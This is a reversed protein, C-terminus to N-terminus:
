LPLPLRRQEASLMGNLKAAAHRDAQLLASAVMREIITSGPAAICRRRLEGMLAGAVVMGSVTTLAIPLLWASLERHDPRSVTRFGFVDRLVELHEYRTPARAAYDAFAAPDIELQEAVFVVAELPVLEGPRILRGPFRLACLQLAFGLRNHPQRRRAIVAFDEPDLIYHRILDTEATPLAFLAELQAETLVRRRPM